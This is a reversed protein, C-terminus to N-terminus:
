LDFLIFKISFTAVVSCTPSLQLEYFLKLAELTKKNIFQDLIEM